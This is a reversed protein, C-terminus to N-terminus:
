GFFIGGGAGRTSRTWGAKHLLALVQVILNAPINQREVIKKTTTSKEDELSALDVLAIIAYEAKKTIM